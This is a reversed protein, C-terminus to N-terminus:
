NYSYNIYHLTTYRLTAYHLTTYRLATYQLPTYNTYHWTIVTTNHRTAYHQTTNRMPLQLQLQLQLLIKEALGCDMRIKLIEFFFRSLLLFFSFFFSLCFPFFISFISKDIQM